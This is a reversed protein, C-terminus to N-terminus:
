SIWLGTEELMARITGPANGEFRNNVFIYARKPTGTQTVSQIIRAGAARGEANVERVQAYPEFQRVAAEYARGPALLFRAACFADLAHSGPMTWQEAVPPMREWSNFVHAVGHRQLAAFYEPQLFNRNRIEVGYRWGAPLKSLFGALAEVFDRGRAFDSPYFRSFEFMLLAVRDRITECPRLFAHAFLEANLFNHNETGARAGFRPLNPFKRVTIEDTVKFALDFGTPLGAVLNGLYREDPFKYYAADVCVTPFTEAYELLCQQEFRKEAFRGRYHYRNETYIQGVWGSYKWSSTGLRVGQEAAARLSRRLRDIDLDSASTDAAAVLADCCEAAEADLAFGDM